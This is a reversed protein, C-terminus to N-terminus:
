AVFWALPYMRVYRRIDEKTLPLYRGLVAIEEINEWSGDPRRRASTGRTVFHLTM